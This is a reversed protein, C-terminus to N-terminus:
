EYLTDEASRGYCGRRLLLERGHSKWREDRWRGAHTVASYCRLHITLENRALAKSRPWSDVLDDDEDRQCDCRDVNLCNDGNRAEVVPRRYVHKGVHGVLKYKTTLVNAFV